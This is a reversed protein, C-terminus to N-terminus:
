VLDVEIVNAKAMVFTGDAYVRIVQLIRQGYNRSWAREPMHDTSPILSFEVAVMDGKRVDSITVVGGKLDDKMEHEGGKGGSYSTRNPGHAVIFVEISDEREYFFDSIGRFYSRDGDKGQIYGFVSAVLNTSTSSSFPQISRGIDFIYAVSKPDGELEAEFEDVSLLDDEGLYSRLFEVDLYNHFSFGTENDSLIPDPSPHLVSFRIELEAMNQRALFGYSFVMRKGEKEISTLRSPYDNQLMVIPVDPKKFSAVTFIVVASLVFVVIIIGGLRSEM